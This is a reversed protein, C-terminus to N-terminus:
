KPQSFISFHEASSDKPQTASLVSVAPQAYQHESLWAEASETCSDASSYNGHETSSEACVSGTSCVASVDQYDVCLKWNTAMSKLLPSLGSGDALKASPKSYLWNDGASGCASSTSYTGYSSYGSPCSSGQAACEYYLYSSTTRTCLTYYDPTAADNRWTTAASECSSQSSYTSNLSYSSSCSSTTCLSYVNSSTEQTCLNWSSSDTSTTSSSTNGCAPCDTARIDTHSEWGVLISCTADVGETTGAELYACAAQCQSDLQIDGYPTQSGSCSSSSSTTSSSGSSSDTSSSSDSTSECALLSWSMLLVFLAGPLSNVKM